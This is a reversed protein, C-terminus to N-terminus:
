LVKTVVTSEPDVAQGIIAELGELTGATAVLHGSRVAVWNGRYQSAHKRLWTMSLDLGEAPSMNPKIQVVPPALVRDARKIRGHDPFRRKGEQALERALTALELSLALEIARIFEDPTSTSWDVFDAWAAFGGPDDAHASEEMLVFIPNGTTVGTQRCDEVRSYLRQIVSTSKATAVFEGCRITHLTYLDSRRRAPEAVIVQKGPWLQGPQQTTQSETDDWFVVDGHTDALAPQINM